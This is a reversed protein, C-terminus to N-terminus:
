VWFRSGTTTGPRPSLMEAPRGERLLRAGATGIGMDHEALTEYRTLSDLLYAKDPLERAAAGSGAGTSAEQMTM